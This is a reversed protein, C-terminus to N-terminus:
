ELPEMIIIIIIIIEKGRKVPRLAQVLIGKVKVKPQV